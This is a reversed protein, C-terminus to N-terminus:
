LNHYQKKILINIPTRSTRIETKLQNIKKLENNQQMQKRSADEKMKEKLSEIDKLVKPNPKGVARELMEEMRTKSGRRDPKYGIGKEKM